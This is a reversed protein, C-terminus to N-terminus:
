VNILGDDIAGQLYGAAIDISHKEFEPYEDPHNLSSSSMVDPDYGTSYVMKLMSLAGKITGDFAHTENVIRNTLLFRTTKSDIAIYWM